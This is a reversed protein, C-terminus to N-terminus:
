PDVNCILEQFLVDRAGFITIIFINKKFIVMRFLFIQTYM